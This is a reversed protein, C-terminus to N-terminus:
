YKMEFIFQLIFIITTKLIKMTRRQKRQGCYFIFHLIRVVNIIHKLLKIKNCNTRHTNKSYQETFEYFVTCLITIIYFSIFIINM